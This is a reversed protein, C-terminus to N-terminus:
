RKLSATLRRWDRPTVRIVPGAGHQATDRVLIAGTVHGTEICQGGNGTSYTSKRWQPNMNGIEM